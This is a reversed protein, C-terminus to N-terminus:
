FAMVMRMCYDGVYSWCEQLINYTIGDGGPSKGKPFGLVIKGVEEKNPLVKLARNDMAFFKKTILKM